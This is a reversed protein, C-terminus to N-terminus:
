LLEHSHALHDPVMFNGKQTYGPPIYQLINRRFQEIEVCDAIRIRSGSRIRWACIDKLVVNVKNHKLLHGLYSESHYGNRANERFSKDSDHKKMYKEEFTRSFNFRDAWIAANARTGYFLRDNYGGYSSFGPLSANSDFIDIPNVYFLDLRFLGVQEYYIRDNDNLIDIEHERMLDWTEKISHWQKIMNDHSLCCEGWAPGKYHYKRSHDIFDGRKEFFTENTDCTVNHTLLFSDSVNIITSSREKNRKNLPAAEIDYTHLFVDCSPNPAIINKKITPLSLTKFDKLLGFFLLACKKPNADNENGIELEEFSIADVQSSLDNHKSLPTAYSLFLLWSSVVTVLSVFIGTKLIGKAKLITAPFSPLKVVSQRLM